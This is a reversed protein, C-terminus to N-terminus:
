PGEREALAMEEEADTLWYRMRMERLMEVATGLHERAPVRSGARRLLAGLGLHCRAVLPRMGLAAALALAEAFHREAQAAGPTGASRAEIAGALYLSRAEAGREERERSVRLAREALGHAEDAWGERLLVHGLFAAFSAERTRRNRAADELADRLLGTGEAPQGAMALAYGLLGSSSIAWAAADAEHAAQRAAQLLPIAEGFDGRSCLVAGYEMRAAVGTIFHGLSEALAVAERASALAADFRGLEGLALALENRSTVAPYLTRGLRERELGGRLLAVSRAFLAAAEEYAGLSLRVMGLNLRAHIELTRDGSAEALSAAREGCEQARSYEAAFWYANTRLGLVRALPAPEGLREALVLAEDTLRLYAERDALAFYWSCLLQRLEIAQAITQPGEPLHALADIATGFHTRAPIAASLDAARTGAQAAYAVAKEWREGHVAHHALREVQEGLAGAYVREIAEMARAHLERRRDKLLSRYAVDHTLAHTFTYELDPFLQTEHVLERVGLRELGASVDPEGGDAVALLLPLPVARGIVAAAQLLRKDEPALRDIRSALVAHVTPPVDMDALPAVLRFAGREGLVAKTEALARVCEELFFPNGETRAILVPKLPTVSADGGLLEDLLRAAGGEPLPDLRIQTYSARGSWRHEYESRYNVLLLLRASPLGEVLADLVAQSESDVWHLDELVVLVPQVQAERLLLRKVANVTRRRRQSPDLERWGADDGTADLLALVAPLTPELARDLGVLRATAKDRIDRITDRDGIRLYRRLLDIVPLYSTAQGYSLAAAELVLWGETRPCHAVEFTLRSKGVGPEGVIAVVQGRGHRTADLARHLQETETDRGVFPSLGRAAAAGLRSRAAGVGTLEFVEIPETLGKVAVPGLSRAQLFGEALALTAPALLTTGPQALQEMRAALHTTQGVASYEMRLDSGIARVVVEGSNLGVRIGIAVGRERRATEAHHRVSEQMRLAAYGARVAHDEHALPAGFLAMIGDGMVQNVTGEFRHVAEMMLEIVPDLIKRAEEPDRDALLEMSGKLDAFLVTVQKREGELAAKSNIIREALHKPTYTEPSAFRPASGPTSVPTACEFCFKAGAPLQTGCNACRLALPAACELCFKAQAPNDQQCRPCKM